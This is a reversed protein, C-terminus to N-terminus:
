EIFSLLQETSIPKCCFVNAGAALSHERYEPSSSVAVIYLKTNYQRLRRIAELGGMVPMEIDMLCLNYRHEQRKILELAEHGNHVCDMDYGHKKLTLAYLKRTLADDEAILIRM